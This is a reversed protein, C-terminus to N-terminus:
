TAHRIMLKPFWVSIESFAVSLFYLKGFVFVLLVSLFYVVNTCVCVLADVFPM